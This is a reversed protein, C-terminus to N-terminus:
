PLEEGDRPTPGAADDNWDAARLADTAKALSELIPGLEPLGRREVDARAAALWEAVTM